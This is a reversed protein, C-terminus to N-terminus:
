ILLSFLILTLNYTFHAAWGPILNNCSRYCLRLLLGGMAANLVALFGLYRHSLAFIAVCLIEVLLQPNKKINTKSILFLATEPLYVRYLSEEYLASVALNIISFILRFGTWNANDALVPSDKSLTKTLVDTLEMLAYVTMLAGFTITAKSICFIFDKKETKIIKKVQVTLFIAIVLQEVTVWSFVLVQSTEQPKTILLPPVVLVVFILLFEILLYKIKM